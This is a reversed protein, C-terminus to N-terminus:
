LADDDTEKEEDKPTSVKLLADIAKQLRNQETVVYSQGTQEDLVFYGNNAQHIVISM